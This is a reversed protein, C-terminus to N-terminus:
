LGNTALALEEYKLPFRERNEPHLDYMFFIDRYREFSDRPNKIFQRFNKRVHSLNSEPFGNARVLQVINEIRKNLADGSCHNDIYNSWGLKFLYMTTVGYYEVSSQENIANLASNLDKTQFLIRYFHEYDDLLDGANIDNLPGCVYSFPSPVTLQAALSAYGGYCASVIVILNLGCAVNIKRLKEGLDFWSIQEGNACEFFNKHGHLDIHLLPLTSSCNEAIKELEGLFECKSTVNKKVTSLEPNKITAENLSSEELRSAINMEGTKVSSILYITNFKHSAIM